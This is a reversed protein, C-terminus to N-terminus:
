EFSDGSDGGDGKIGAVFHIEKDKDYGGKRLSKGNFLILNKGHKEWIKGLRDLARIIKKEGETISNEM